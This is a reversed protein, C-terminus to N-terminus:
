LPLSINLYRMLRAFLVRLFYSAKKIFKKLFFQITVFKSKAMTMNQTTMPPKLKPKFFNVSCLLYTSTGSKMPILISSAAPNAEFSWRFSMTVSETNTFRNLCPAM